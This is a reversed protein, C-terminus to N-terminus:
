LWWCHLRGRRRRAHRQRHWSCRWRCSKQRRLTQGASAGMGLFVMGMLNVKSSRSARIWKSFTIFALHPIFTECDRGLGMLSRILVLFLSSLSSSGSEMKMRRGQVAVSESVTIEFFIARFVGPFLQGVDTNVGDDHYPSGGHHHILALRHTVLVTKKTM